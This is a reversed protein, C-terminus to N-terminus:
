PTLTLFTICNNDDIVKLNYDDQNEMISPINFEYPLTSITNIYICNTIPNDCIYIDFPTAGTINNIIIKAPM